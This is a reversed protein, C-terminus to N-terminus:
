VLEVDYHSRRIELFCRDTQLVKCVVPLLATFVAEPQTHTAFVAELSEPVSKLLYEM